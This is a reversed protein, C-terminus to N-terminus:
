SPLVGLVSVNQIFVCTFAQRDPYISFKVKLVNDFNQGIKEDDPFEWFVNSRVIFSLKYCAWFSVSDWCNSYFSSIDFRATWPFVSIAFSKICSESVFEQISLYEIHKLLCLNKYFLPTDVVISQSRMTWQIPFRRNRFWQKLQILTNHFVLM